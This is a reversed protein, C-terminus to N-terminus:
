NARGLLWDMAAEGSSLVSIHGDDPRLWFEAAPIQGALWKGHSRPAIRDQEGQVVLVPPRIQTPDFGWSAVYALDDDIMGGPGGEM